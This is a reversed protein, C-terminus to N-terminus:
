SHMFAFAIAMEFSQDRSSPMSVSREPLRLFPRSRTKSSCSQLVAVSRIKPVDVRKEPKKLVLVIALSVLVASAIGLVLWPNKMPVRQAARHEDAMAQAAEPKKPRDLFSEPAPTDPLCAIEQHPRSLIPAIFRYGQGTVTQIFRPQEPDDILVQRIKRIAGRISNDTDLFVDKGWLRGVIQERTIVDGPHEILLLLIELPIRELKLVRSGHRLRRPRLDLEFGEGFAISEPLGIPLSAM